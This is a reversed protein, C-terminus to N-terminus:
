HAQPPGYELLTTWVRCAQLGDHRVEPLDFGRLSVVHGFACIIVGDRGSVM